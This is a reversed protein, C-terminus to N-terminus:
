KSQLSYIQLEDRLQLGLVILLYSFQCFYSCMRRPHTHFESPRTLTKNKRGNSLWGFCQCKCQIIRAKAETAQKASSEYRGCCHSINLM